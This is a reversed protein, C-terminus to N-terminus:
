VVNFDILALCLTENYFDCCSINNFGIEGYTFFGILPASWLDSAAQIEDAVMPGAVRHRAMCSFLLILSARNHGAHFDILEQIAKQITEYGFSTSFRVKSGQPVSGAFFLAQRDFDVALFARHVETGDARKMLLPFTIGVKQLTEDSVQLYDKFVQTAPRDNITYVINDESSTVVMETGVGVWGSTAIGDVHMKSRDFVIVVAGNTSYGKNSFVYTEQFDGDDGSIGGFIPTKQPCVAEIGRIIAEGDNKLGSIAIIFAPNKFTEKGWNGICNGFDTASENTMEFLRISFHSPDPDAFYCVASQEFIPSDESPILIEGCTSCGFTPIDLSSIISALEPIGIATSSFIIGLTPRFGPDNRTREVVEDVSYATFCIYQSM